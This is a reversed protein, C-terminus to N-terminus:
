QFQLATADTHPQVAGTLIFCEATVVVRSATSKRELSCMDGSHLCISLWTSTSTRSNSTMGAEEASASRLKLVSRRSFVQNRAVMVCARSLKTHTKFTWESKTSVRLRSSTASCNTALCSLRKSSNPFNAVSLYAACISSPITRSFCM